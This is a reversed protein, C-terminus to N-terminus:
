EIKLYCGGWYGWCVWIVNGKVITEYIEDDVCKWEFFIYEGYFMVIFWVM